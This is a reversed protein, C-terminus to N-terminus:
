GGVARVVRSKITTEIWGRSSPLQPAATAYRPMVRSPRLPSQTIPHINTLIATNPTHLPMPSSHINTIAINPPQLRTSSTRAAALDKLLLAAHNPHAPNLHIHSSQSSSRATPDGFARVYHRMSPFRYGPKFTRGQCNEFSQNRNGPKMLELLKTSAGISNFCHKIQEM